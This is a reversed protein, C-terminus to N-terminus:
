EEQKGIKKDILFGEVIDLGYVELFVERAFDVIREPQRRDLEVVLSRIWTVPKKEGDFAALDLSEPQLGNLRIVDMLRAVEEQDLHVIERGKIAPPEKVPRLELNRKLGLATVTRIPFEAQLVRNKEIRLEVFRDSDPAEIVVFDGTKGKEGLEAVAELLADSASSDAGGCGIAPILLVVLVGRAPM